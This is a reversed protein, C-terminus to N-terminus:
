ESLLKALDWMYVQSEGPMQGHEMYGGVSVLQRSDPSFFVDQVEGFAHGVLTAILRATTVNWLRVSCFPGTGGTALLTGDPSYTVSYPKHGPTDIATEDSVV